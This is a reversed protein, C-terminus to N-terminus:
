QWGIRPLGEVADQFSGLKQAGRGSALVGGEALCVGVTAIDMKASLQPRVGISEEGSRAKWRSNWLEGVGM